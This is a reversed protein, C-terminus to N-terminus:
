SEFEPCVCALSTRSVEGSGSGNSQAAARTSYEYYISLYMESKPINQAAKPLATSKIKITHPKEASRASFGGV